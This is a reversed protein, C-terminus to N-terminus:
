KRVKITMQKSQPMENAKVWEEGLAATWLDKPVYMTVPPQVLEFSDSYEGGRIAKEMEAKLATLHKIDRKIKEYSTAVDSSTNKLNYNLM